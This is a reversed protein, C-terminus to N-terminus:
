VSVESLQNAIANLLTRVSRDVVHDGIRVFAGGMLSPDVSTTLHIKKGTSKELEAHLREIEAPLLPVASVVTAQSLGKAREVIAKFETVIVDLVNLRKKRLLLDTFVLVNPVVRGKLANQLAARKDDPRVQPSTLFMGVRSDPRTVEAVGTLDALTQELREILATGGGPTQKGTLLELARAYRSAVSTDRM